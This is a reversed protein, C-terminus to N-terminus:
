RLLKSLGVPNIIQIHKGRAEILKDHNMERIARGLSPRTVGFLESLGSQSISLLVEMSGTKKVLDLLYLAMKGKISQFSLLRIKSSLFQARGSTANLYNKLITKHEQLLQLFSERFFYLITSPRTAVINVPYRNQPGFLFAPALLRPSEIDEIKITKGTFDYMEGKVSGKVLILQHKVLDGSLAVVENKNFSKIQYRTKGLVEEIEEQDLGTFLPVASNIDEM